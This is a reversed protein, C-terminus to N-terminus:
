LSREKIEKKIQSVFKDLKVTSQSSDKRSRVNITGDNMEKEGVVIIYPVKQMEAKRIRKGLTEDSSEMEERIGEGKLTEDIGLCYKKQKESVPLLVVQVPALWTPFAGAFHEILVGMFREFSGFIARHIMIPQQKKNKEDIYELEFREPMQFDLQITALQHERGIADKAHIDIKPGYFTGDKAKIEYDIGSKKLVDELSKEAKKWLNASGMAKEPKTAFNFSISLGFVEYLEKTYKILSSVEGEIQDPRCFVHADDQTFQRLRFLGGLTGTLENRHLKGTPEALRLPLDRYSRTAGSYILTAEPCNMPKLVYTEKDVDFWFGDERYHDWHGSTEFLEKKVIIPTSVEGYNYNDNKERIFKELERWMIMGKPHWFISGPSSKHQSFLDLQRGLVRHDRKKAEELITLHEKLKKKNEFAIGYIRILQDNKEDGRWYAGALNTLKFSDSKIDGTKKVHEGRCLDVFEGVTYTTIKEEKELDAILELKYPQDKGGSASGGKASFIERAEDASVEKGVFELDEKIIKKMEEEIKELDNESPAEGFGFDYFFGTDTVPGVGFKVDKYLRKIALAMIHALSHRVNNIKDM